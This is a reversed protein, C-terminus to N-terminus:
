GLRSLWGPVKSVLDAVKESISIAADIGEAAKGAGAAHKAFTRQSQDVRGTAVAAEVVLRPQEVPTTAEELLVSQLAEVPPELENDLWDIIFDSLEHRHGDLLARISALIERLAELAREHLQPDPIARFRVTAELAAPPSPNQQGGAEPLGPAAAFGEPPALGLQAATDLLAIRRVERDAEFPPM